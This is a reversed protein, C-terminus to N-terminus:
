LQKQFEVKKLMKSQPIITKYNKRPQSRLRSPERHESKQQQDQPLINGTLKKINKEKQSTKTEPTYSTQTSCKKQITKQNKNKDINQNKEIEPNNRFDQLGKIFKHFFIISNIRSNRIRKSM